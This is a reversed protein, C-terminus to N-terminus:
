RRVARVALNYAWRGAPLRFEWDRLRRLWRYRQEVLPVGLFAELAKEWLYELPYLLLGSLFIEEIHFRQAFLREVEALSYHRHEQWRFRQFFFGGGPKPLRLAKLFRFFGNVVNDGDLWAFLGRHPTTLILRGGPKLIRAIEDIAAQDDPLHELVESCVVVDFSARPFPLALASGVVWHLSPFERHARQINLFSHDLGWVQWGKRALWQTFYGNGCGVDLLRGRGEPVWQYVLRYRDGLWERYLVPTSM